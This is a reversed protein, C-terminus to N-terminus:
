RRVEDIGLPRDAGIGPLSKRLRQMADAADLASWNAATWFDTRQKVGAKAVDHDHTMKEVLTLGFLDLTRIPTGEVKITQTHAHLKDYDASGVLLVDVVCEDAVRIVGGAEIWAPEIADAVKRPLGAMLAARLSAGAGPTAPILLDLDSTLRCRGHALMAWGGVLIYEAGHTPLAAALALLDSLRAPRSCNPLNRASQIAAMTQALCYQQHRSAEDHTPFHYGGYPIGTSAGNPVRHMEDNWRAGDLLLQPSAWYAIPPPRRHGAIRM